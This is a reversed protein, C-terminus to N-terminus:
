SSKLRGLLVVQGTFTGAPIFKLVNGEIVQPVSIAPFAGVAQWGEGAPLAVRIEAPLPTDFTHLVVLAQLGDDSVRLAAQAGRPHRWAPAIKRFLRTSGGKIIPAVRAYFQIAENM